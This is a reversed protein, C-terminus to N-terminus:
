TTLLNSGWSSCIDAFCGAMHVIPITATNRRSPRPDEASMGPNSSFRVSEFEPFTSDSREDRKVEDNVLMVKHSCYLCEGFKHDDYLNIHGGCYPCTLSIFKM